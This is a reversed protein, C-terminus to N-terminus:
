MSGPWVKKTVAENPDVTVKALIFYPLEDRRAVVSLFSTENDFTEAYLAQVNARLSRGVKGRMRTGRRRAREGKRCERVGEVSGKGGVEDRDAVTIRRQKSCVKVGKRVTERGSVSSKLM